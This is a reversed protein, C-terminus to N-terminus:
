VNYNSKKKLSAPLRTEAQGGNQGRNAQEHRLGIGTLALFIKIEEM